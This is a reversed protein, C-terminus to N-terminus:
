PIGFCKQMPPGAMALPARLQCTNEAIRDFYSLQFNYEARMNPLM